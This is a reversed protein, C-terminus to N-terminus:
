DILYHTAPVSIKFLNGFLRCHFEVIDEIKKIKKSSHNTQFAEEEVIALVYFENDSLQLMFTGTSSDSNESVDDDNGDDNLAFKKTNLLQVIIPSSNKAATAKSYKETHKSWLMSKIADKTIPSNITAAPVAARRGRRSLMM